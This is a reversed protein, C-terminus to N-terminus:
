GDGQLEALLETASEIDTLADEVRPLPSFQGWNENDQPEDDNQCFVTMRRQTELLNQQISDVMDFVTVLSEPPEVDTGTPRDPVDPVVTETAESVVACDLRDSSLQEKYALAVDRATQLWAYAATVSADTVSEPQQTQQRKDENDDEGSIFAFGAYLIAAGIVAFFAIILLRQLCGRGRIEGVTEDAVQAVFEDLEDLFSDDIESPEDTYTM